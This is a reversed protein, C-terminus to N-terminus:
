RRHIRPTENPRYNWNINKYDNPKGGRKYTNIQTVIGDNFWVIIYTNMIHGSECWQLVEDIGNFQKNGPAGMINIVESKSMGPNIYVSQQIYNIRKAACSVVCVGCILIM